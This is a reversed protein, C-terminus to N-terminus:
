FVPRQRQNKSRNNTTSERFRATFFAAALIVLVLLAMIVAIWLGLAQLSTLYLPLSFINANQAPFFYRDTLPHAELKPHCIFCCKM